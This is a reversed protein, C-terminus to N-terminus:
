WHRQGQALGPSFEKGVESEGKSSEWVRWWDWLRGAEECMRVDGREARERLESTVFALVDHGLDGDKLLCPRDRVIAVTRDIVYAALLTNAELSGATLTGMNLGLDFCAAVINANLIYLNLEQSSSVLIFIALLIGSQIGPLSDWKGTGYSKIGLYFYHQALLPPQSCRQSLIFSSIAWAFLGSSRKGPQSPTLHSDNVSPCDQMAQPPLISFLPQIVEYFTRNYLYGKTQNQISVGCTGDELSLTQSQMSETFHMRQLSPTSIAKTTEYFLESLDQEPWGSQQGIPFVDSTARRRSNKGEGYIDFDHSLSNMSSRRSHSPLSQNTVSLNDCDSVYSPAIISPTSLGSWSSVSLEPLCFLPLDTDPGNFQSLTPSQPRFGDWSTIEIQPIELTLQSPNIPLRHREQPRLSALFDGQMSTESPCLSIARPRGHNRHENQNPTPEASFPATSWPPVDSPSFHEPVSPTASPPHSWALFSQSYESLVSPFDDLKPEHFGPSSPTQLTLRPPELRGPSQSPRAAPSSIFEQALGPMSVDAIHNNPNTHIAVLKEELCRIRDELAAQQQEERKEASDQFKCVVRMRTCQECPFFEDCKIKRRRCRECAKAAMQRPPKRTAM